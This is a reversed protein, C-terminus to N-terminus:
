LQAARRRAGPSAPRRAAGRGGRHDARVFRRRDPPDPYLIAGHGSDAYGLHEVRHVGLVAASARLEGLRVSGADSVAAMHGDTAVVIVVRHGAAVAGAPTGGTLLVEDDPHAHFAVVTAMAAHYPV